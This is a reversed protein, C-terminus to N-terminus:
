SNGSYTALPTVQTEFFFQGQGAADAGSVVGFTAGAAVSTALDAINVLTGPAIGSATGFVMKGLSTTGNYYTWTSAATNSKTVLFTASRIRMASVGSPPTFAYYTTTAAGGVTGSVAVSRGTYAPAGYDGSASVM